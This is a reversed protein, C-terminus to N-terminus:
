LASRISNKAIAPNLANLIEYRKFVTKTPNKAKFKQWETAYPGNNTTAFDFTEIKSEVYSEEIGWYNRGNINVNHQMKQTFNALVTHEEDLLDDFFEGWNKDSLMGIYIVSIWLIAFHLLFWVMMIVIPAAVYRVMSIHQIRGTQVALYYLVYFVQFVAFFYYEDIMSGAIIIIGFVVIGAFYVDIYKDQKQELADNMKDIMILSLVQFAIIILRPLEIKWVM